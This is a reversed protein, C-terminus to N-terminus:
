SGFYIVALTQIIILFLTLFAGCLTKHKSKKLFRLQVARGFIDLGIIKQKIGM